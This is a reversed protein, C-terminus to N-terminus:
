ASAPRFRVEVALVEDDLELTGGHLRVLERALALGVAHRSTQLQQPAVPTSSRIALVPSTGLEVTLTGSSRALELVHDFLRDIVQEVRERDGRLHTDRAITAGVDIRGSGRGRAREVAAEVVAGLDFRTSELRLEGRRAHLLDRFDGILRAQLEACQRIALLAQERRRADDTHRLVDEWLLLTSIPALLDHMLRDLSERDVAPDATTMM